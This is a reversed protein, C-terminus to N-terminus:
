GSEQLRFEVFNIEKTKSNKRFLILYKPVIKERAGGPRNENGPDM